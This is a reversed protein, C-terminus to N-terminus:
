LGGGAFMSSATALSAPPREARNMPQRQTEPGVTPSSTQPGPVLWTGTHIHVKTMARTSQFPTSNACHAGDQSHPGEGRWTQRRKRPM